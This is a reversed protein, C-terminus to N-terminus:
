LVVLMIVFFVAMSGLGVWFGEKFNANSFKSM